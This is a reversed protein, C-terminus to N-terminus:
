GGAQQKLMKKAGSVCVSYPTGPTGAVHKKSEGACAKAPHTASGNALKAMDTVCKSFPTRRAGAVHKKSEGQCFKGYAKAKSASTPSTSKNPHGGNGLAVAPFVGLAMTGAVVALKSQLRM